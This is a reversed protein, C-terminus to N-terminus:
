FPMGGNIMISFAQAYNPTNNGYYGSAILSIQGQSSDSPLGEIVGYGPSDNGGSTMCFFATRRPELTFPTDLSSIIYTSALKGSYAEGTRDFMKVSVVASSASVNSIKFCSKGGGDWVHYTPIIATGAHVSISFLSCLLSAAIFAKKM